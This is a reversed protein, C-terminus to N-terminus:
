LACSLSCTGTIGTPPLACSCYSCPTPAVSALPVERSHEFGEFTQTRDEFSIRQNFLSHRNARKETMCVGPHHWSSQIMSNCVYGDTGPKPDM